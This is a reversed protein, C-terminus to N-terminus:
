SDAESERLNETLIWLPSVEKEGTHVLLIM